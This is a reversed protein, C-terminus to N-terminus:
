RVDINGGTAKMRKELTPQWYYPILSAYGLSRLRRMSVDVQMDKSHGLADFGYYTQIHRSLVIDEEREAISSDPFGDVAEYAEQRVAM